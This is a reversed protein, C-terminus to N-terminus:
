MQWLSKAENIEKMSFNMEDVIRDLNTKTKAKIFNIKENDRITLMYEENEPLSDKLFISGIITNNFIEEWNYKKNKIFFDVCMDDFFSNYGILFPTNNKDLIIDFGLIGVYEREEEVLANITPNIITEQIENKLESSIINPKLFAINNQYKLVTDIIKARYGDSITWVMINKGEVYDQLIIKKNGTNFFKECNQVVESHTQCFLTGEQFSHNDPKIAIPLNTTKSFEIASSLKEAIFFKPTLISNKHMLRYAFVKSSSLEIAEYSPSFVAINNESLEDTLYSNTYEEQTSLVFDIENALCFELIDQNLKFEVYNKCHSFMSFVDNDKNKQFKEFFRLAAYNTGLILIRM